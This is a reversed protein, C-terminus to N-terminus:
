LESSTMVHNQKLHDIVKTLIGKLIHNEGGQDLKQFRAVDKDLDKLDKAVKAHDLKLSIQEEGEILKLSYKQNGVRTAILQLM